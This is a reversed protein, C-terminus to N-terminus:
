PNEFEVNQMAHPVGCTITAANGALSFIVCSFLADIVIVVKFQCDLDLPPHSGIVTLDVSLVLSDGSLLATM